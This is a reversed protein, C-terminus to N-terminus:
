KWLPGSVAIYRVQDAPLQKSAWRISQVWETAESQTAKTWAAAIFDTFRANNPSPKKGTLFIWAEMLAHAFNRKAPKGPNSRGAAIFTRRESGLQALLETLKFAEILTNADRTAQATAAEQQVPIGQRYTYLVRVQHLPRVLEDETPIKPQGSLHKLLDGLTRNTKNALTALREWGAMAKGSDLEPAPMAKFIAVELARRGFAVADETNGRWRRQVRRGSREEILKRILEDILFFEQKSYIVESLDSFKINSLAAGTRKAGKPHAPRHFTCEM